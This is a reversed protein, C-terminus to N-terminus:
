GSMEAYRWMTDKLITKMKKQQPWVRPKTVGYNISHWFCARTSYCLEACSLEAAKASSSSEEKESLSTERQYLYILQLRQQNGSLATDWAHAPQHTQWGSHESPLALITYNENAGNACRFWFPNTSPQQKRGAMKIKNLPSCLIHLVCWKPRNWLSSLHQQQLATVSSQLQQLTGSATAIEM